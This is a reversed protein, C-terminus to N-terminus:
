TKPVNKAAFACTADNLSHQSGERRRGIAIEIARDAHRYCFPFPSTPASNSTNRVCIPLRGAIVNTRVSLVGESCACQLIPM